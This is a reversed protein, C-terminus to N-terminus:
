GGEEWFGVSKLDILPNYHQLNAGLGEAELATWVAFQHMAGSETAWPPFRDAYLAFKDQMGKVVSRATFFMVTGYAGKFGNLKKETAPYQEAPVIAKLVEKVIEWLKDHEEKVLLVVRTSQSNFSSPVNLIVSKIIEQIKADSIPSSKSLAYYTRRSAITDLFAKSMNATTQTQQTQSQPTSLPTSTSTTSYSAQTTTTHSNKNNLFFFSSPFFGKIDAAGRLLPLAATFRASTSGFGFTSSRKLLLSAMEQWSLAVLVTVLFLWLPIQM